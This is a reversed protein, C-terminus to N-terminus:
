LSLLLALSECIYLLQNYCLKDATSFVLVFTAVLHLISSMIDVNKIHMLMSCLHMHTHLIYLKLCIDWFNNVCIYCILEMTGSSIQNFITIPTSITNAAAHYWCSLMMALTVANNSAHAGTHTMVDPHKQPYWQCLIM